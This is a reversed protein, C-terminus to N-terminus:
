LCEILKERVIIFVIFYSEGKRFWLLLRLGKSGSRMDVHESRGKETYGEYFSSELRRTDSPPRRTLFGTVGRRPVDRRGFGPSPVVTTLVTPRPTFPDWFVRYPLPGSPQHPPSPPRGTDLSTVDFSSTGFMIPNMRHTGRFVGSSYTDHIPDQVVRSTWSDDM